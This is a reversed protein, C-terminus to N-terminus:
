RPHRRACELMADISGPTFVVDPNSIILFEDDIDGAERLDRLNRAGLNMASGYGINGGSYRLELGPDKANGAADPAADQAGAGPGSIRGGRDAVAAEPAGDTSGNDVMVVHAGQAAAAPISDLFKTIY